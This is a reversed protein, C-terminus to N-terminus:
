IKGHCHKFKKGSGCPCPANRGVKRPPASTQARAGEGLIGTREGGDFDITPRPPPPLPPGEIAPPAAPPEERPTERITLAYLVRAIDGKISDLMRNFMEFSERRYEQLPNKQAHGRWGVSQRLNELASLHGRWHGDVVNLIVSRLFRSFPEAAAAATKQAFSKEAEERIKDALADRSLSPDAALWEQPSLSLRYDGALIRTMEGLRWGEEPTEPPMCEDCLAALSEGRFDRAIGDIDPASLIQERQEYLIRRQDNAIDDFQLLQRRIDFNHAEVKRQANEITRTVLKSEIAEDEDIQLREMLRSVRDAAFVRLLSDEFSLYFASSGPDGQRGARGRLQNDVRRSENREAGLIRLGGAAVVSEHARRWEAELAEARAQKEEDPLNEDAAVAAKRDDINGGLVIDTGRGAMNTAITVAGPAGAQAVITAERDHQKANLVEHPVSQAALRASLKESADISATGVLVPQGRARAAKIDEIIARTKGAASRYVRDLQDDRAMKRHTPIRAVELGYIFRFEEAETAATGTMGSIKRYLRFYNQFSTSALTQNERQIALGEKAEIAQHQGDGLRRGPMLRGTFEDVLVAEGNQVVYDRDLLYLHRAKLAASLHHLLGLNAPDYLSEGRLMKERAFVSEAKEYGAETLHAQRTKEDLVFDGRPPADGEGRVARSLPSDLDPSPGDSKEFGAAIAAVARYVDVSDSSEGSIILPVRAEDILISDVEDVVAFDLGAQLRDDAAFRMNDRLYDFGFQNNTGYVVPCAYAARKEASTSNSLNVGVDVGLFRYVAGMWEADRRALYDNVTVIHTKGGLAQLCAPLTAALTKGEGTKMEAVCGSFLAMGGLMQEDFHRMGLSRAAAERCVAFSEPLLSDLTEGADCRARLAAFRAPIQDDSLYELGEGAARVAPLRARFAALRGGWMARMRKLM